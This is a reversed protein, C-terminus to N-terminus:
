KISSNRGPNLHIPGTPGMKELTAALDDYINGRAHKAATTWNAAKYIDGTEIEVFCYVEAGFVIKYYKNGVTYKFKKPESKTYIRHKAEVGLYFKKFATEFEEKKQDDLINSIQFVVSKPIAIQTHIVINQVGVEISFWRNIKILKAM